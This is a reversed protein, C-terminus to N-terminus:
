ACDAPSAARPQALIADYSPRRRARRHRRPRPLAAPARRASRDGRGARARRLLAGLERDVYGGDKNSDSYGLMVEQRRAPERRDDSLGAARVGHADIEGCRALDDITEFLPV